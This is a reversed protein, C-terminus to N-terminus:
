RWSEKIADFQDPSIFPQDILSIMLEGCYLCESAVLEDLEDKCSDRLTSEAAQLETTYSTGLKKQLERLRSRQRDNLHPEVEAILCDTHFMHGCPFLYFARSMINFSCITCTEQVSIIRYSNKMAQIDERLSKASETAEQMEQRLSEIHKNYEQLSSCIADKFHDITVFDPFFPLIDEIKLLDCDKLFDMAQKIDNKEEIVHRAILLWLRRKLEEDDEPIQANNKALDVSVEKLALEVAEDFLGMAAYIYVCSRHCRYEACLRLAYNPDYSVARGQVQLYTELKSEDKNKAYLSILYDHIAQDNNRLDRICFELYRIAESAQPSHQGYHILSPILKKADLNGELLIWTSIVDKPIHPILDASFKYYLEPNRQNSLANLAEKFRDRQIYYTIVKEHDNMLKAFFIMNDTDGHSSILDSLTACLTPNDNLCNTVRQQQLFDRFEAQMVECLETKDDDKLKGIDNLYLETLWTLLMSMQTKDQAKLCNFKQILFVKLADRRNLELFKLAVQEFSKQSQAYFLAASQYEKNDFFHDAQATLVKDLHVPNDKCFQKAKEFENKELLMRWVYRDEHIVEFQFISTQSYMWIIKSVPDVLVAIVDNFANGQFYDEFVVEENLLAVANLRDKFLLLAHFETVTLSIPPSVSVNEGDTTDLANYPMLLAGATVSHKPDRFNFTGHYIGPETLWAFSVPIKDKRSYAVHFESFNLTEGPLELFQAPRGEYASFLRTFLPQDQSLEGVFQYMRNPTTAIVFYRTDLRYSSPPFRDFFLGTIREATESAESRNLSYVQKMYKETGSQFRLREVSADLETEFILGRATGILIDRTSLDTANSGNWAISEILHGKLKNLLKVKKMSAALYYNEMSEMAIIAHKGTPDLFIRYVKDTLRGSIQVDDSLNKDYLCIRRLINNSLAVLMMNNCIAVRQIFTNVPIRFGSGIRNFIPREEESMINVFGSSPVTENKAATSPYNTRSARFNSQQYQELISAM